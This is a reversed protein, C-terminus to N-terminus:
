KIKYFRMLYSELMSAAKEPSEMLALIILCDNLRAKLFMDEKSDLEYNSSALDKILAEKEGELFVKLKEITVPGSNLVEEWRDYVKKAVPSLTDYQKGLKKLVSTLINDPM